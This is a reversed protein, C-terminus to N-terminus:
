SPVVAAISQAILQYGADNPHPNPGLPGPTCNWTLSCTREVDQPVLGVHSLPV